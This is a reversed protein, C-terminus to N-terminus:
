CCKSFFLVIRNFKFVKRHKESSHRKWGQTAPVLWCLEPVGLASPSLPPQSPAPNPWLSSGLCEHSVASDWRLGPNVAALAPPLGSYVIYMYVSVAWVEPCDSMGRDVLYLVEKSMFFISLYKIMELLFECSLYECCLITHNGARWTINNTNCVACPSTMLLRWLTSRMVSSCCDFYWSRWAPRGESSLMCSASTVRARPEASSWTVKEQSWNWM